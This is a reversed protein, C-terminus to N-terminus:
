FTATVECQHGPAVTLEGLAACEIDDNKYLKGRIPASAEGTEWRWKGISVFQLPTGTEWSLGPGEGRLFLKNGIGIYATVLLRTMGDTTVASASQPPETEVALAPLDLGLTLENDPIVRKAPRKRSAKSGEEDEGGDEATTPDEATETPKESPTAPEGFAATPPPTDTPLIPSASARALASASKPSTRRSPAEQSLSEIRAAASKLQDIKQDLVDSAHDIKATLRGSLTGLKTEIEALAHSLTEEITKMASLHTTALSKEADARMSAIATTAEAAAQEASTSFSTLSDTLDTVNKRSAAELRAIESSLKRVTTLITEIRETEAARLTNVEQSLAENESLSVENLQEKFEHIKEQLKQPLQEAQKASKAALDAITHLSSAAISLQEASAATSQALAAIERQRETLANEQRRAFNLLFPLVALIAGLFILVGVLLLPGGALMGKSQYGILAAVGLLLTDVVIFPWPNLKPVEDSINMPAQAIRSEEADAQEM